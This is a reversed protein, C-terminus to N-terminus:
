SVRVKGDKKSVTAYWNRKHYVDPGVVNISKGEPLDSVHYDTPNFMSTDFFYVDKTGLRVAEVLKSKTAFGNVGYSM